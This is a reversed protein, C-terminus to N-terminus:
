AMPSGPLLPPRAPRRISNTTCQQRQPLHVLHMPEHDVLCVLVRDTTLEKDDASQDETVIPIVLNSGLDRMLRPTLLRKEYGVGGAPADSKAVYQDSCVVIVRDASTIGSEMFLSLDSGLRTDWKDLVADVGNSRLRTALQLVWAEHEADDWAYSVFARPASTPVSM